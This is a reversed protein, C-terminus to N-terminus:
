KAHTIREFDEKDWKKKQFTDLWETGWENLMYCKSYSRSWVPCRGDEDCTRLACKLHHWDASLTGRVGPRHSEGAFSDLVALVGIVFLAALVCFVTEARDQRKEEPSKEKKEM